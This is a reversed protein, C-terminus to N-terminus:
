PKDGQLRLIEDLVAPAIGIGGKRAIENGLQEAMMGKYISEANGGGFVGDETVTSLMMQTLQGVFVAEFQQAAESPTRGARKLEPLPPPGPIKDLPDM